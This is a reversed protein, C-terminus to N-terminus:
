QVILVPVSVRHRVADVTSGFIFDKYGKHGHAGMVVLEPSYSKVIEVIAKAPRGFGIRCEIRYGQERLKVAYQELRHRDSKLELDDIEHSMMMAGASELVHILLYEASKGGQTLAASITKMENGSFDIAVAIRQYAEHQSAVMPESERHTIQKQPKRTHGFIPKFTVYLLLVGVTFAAPLVIFDIIFPHTDSQIWKFLYATVLRANLGVIV